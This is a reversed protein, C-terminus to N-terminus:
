EESIFKREKIVLAGESGSVVRFEEKLDERHLFKRLLVRLYARSVAGKESEARLERDSVDIKVGLKSELFEALKKVTEKYRSRLESIEIVISSM